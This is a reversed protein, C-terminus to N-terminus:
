RLLQKKLLDATKQINVADQQVIKKIRDNIPKKLFWYGVAWALLCVFAVSFNTLFLLIVALVWGWKAIKVQKFKDPMEEEVIQQPTKNAIRASPSPLKGKVIGRQDAMMAIHHTQGGFEFELVYFPILVPTPEDSVSNRSSVTVDRSSFELQSFMNMSQQIAEAPIINLAIYAIGANESLDIAAPLLFNDVIDNGNKMWASHPSGSNDGEIVGGSASIFSDPQFNDGIFGIKCFEKAWYPTAQNDNIILLDFELSPVTGSYPTGDPISVKQKNVTIEQTGNVKATWSGEAKGKFRNGWLYVLKNKEPDICEISGDPWQYSGLNSVISNLFDQKTVQPTAVLVQQTTKSEDM